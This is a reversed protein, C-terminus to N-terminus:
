RPKIWSLYDKKYKFGNKKALKEIAKDFGSGYQAAIKKRFAFPKPLGLEVAAERLIIKKETKSIKYKAPIAMATKILETDLFPVLFNVKMARAVDYDRILDKGHMNKLGNWCEANVDKALEHRKYGAFIEESGLGGFFTKIRDKKALLIAAIEVSAVGVNVVNAEGVIQTAKRIIKEAEKLEFKKYRLKFHMKKAVKKAEVLDKSGELGVSYCIFDAHLQKCLLAILSSDVGGSFMIGFRKKPLRKEVAASIKQKLEKKASSKTLEAVPISRLKGIYSEWTQKGILHGNQLINALIAMCSIILLSYKFTSRM